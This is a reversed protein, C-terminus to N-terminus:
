GFQKAALTQILADESGFLSYANLNFENLHRLVTGRLVRPLTIKWLEDQGESPNGFVEAHKAYVFAGRQERVSVMCNPDWQVCTTYQCQQLFHRAHTPTHEPLQVIRPHASGIVKGRGSNERYAYIAVRENGPSRPNFAFFAAVFPSRSWDLLPSPFGHHRLYAMFEYGPWSVAPGLSDFHSAWLEFKGREFLSWKKATHAEVASQVQLMATHYMALSWPIAYPETQSRDLTTDLDWDANAQGRFLVDSRLYVEGLTMGQSFPRRLDAVFSVFQEWTEFDRTEM